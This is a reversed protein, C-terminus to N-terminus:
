SNVIQNTWKKIREDTLQAQNVEDLALGLFKNDRIATTNSGYSYGETPWYGVLTAGSSEFIDHLIGIANVFVDKHDEQDGLGFIAVKKNNLNPIGFDDFFNSWDDQLDGYGWTSSGAIIFDYSQILDKSVSEINFVDAKLILGIKEAVDETAGMTSGYFVGIKM